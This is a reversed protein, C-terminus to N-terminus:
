VYQEDGEKSPDIFENPSFYPETTVTIYGRELIENLRNNEQQAEGCGGLVVALFLCLTMAIWRRGFRKRMDGDEM